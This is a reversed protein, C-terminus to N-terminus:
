VKGLFGRITIEDEDGGSTVVLPNVRFYMYNVPFDVVFAVTVNGTAKTFQLDSLTAVGADISMSQLLGLSTAGDNSVEITFKLDTALTDTDDSLFYVALSVQNYGTCNVWSGTTTVNGAVANVGMQAPTVERLAAPINGHVTIGM